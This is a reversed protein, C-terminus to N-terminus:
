TYWQRRQGEKYKKKKLKLCLRLLMGLSVKFERQLRLFGQIKSRGTKAKGYSPNYGLV